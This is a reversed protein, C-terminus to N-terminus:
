VRNIIEVPVYGTVAIGEEKYEESLLQGYKRILQITGAENYRYFREIYIRRAKLLKSLKDSLEDMGEGTKVSGIISEDAMFDKFGTSETLDCKNFLTIIPKDTVGLDSLTQYVVHMNLDMDPNSSDVM